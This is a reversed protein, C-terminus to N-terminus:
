AKVEKIKKTSKIKKRDPIFLEVLLLLLMPLVPWMYFTQYTYSSTDGLAKKDIQNYQSLIDKVAAEASELHIYTGNTTAALQQLLQQNLKSVVVQ